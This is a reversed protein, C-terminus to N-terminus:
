RRTTSWTILIFPFHRGCKGVGEFQYASGRVAGYRRLKFLSPVPVVHDFNLLRANLAHFVGILGMVALVDNLRQLAAIASRKSVRKAPYEEGREGTRGAGADLNGTHLMLKGGDGAHLFVHRLDDQVDLADDGAKVAVTGLGNVDLSGALAQDGGTVDLGIGLHLDEIGLLRNCGETGVASQVHLEDQIM